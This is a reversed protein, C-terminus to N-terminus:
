VVPQIIIRSLTRLISKQNLNQGVYLGLVWIKSLFQFSLFDAKNEIKIYRKNQHANPRTNDFFKEDTTIHHSYTLDKRVTFLSYIIIISVKEIVATDYLEPQM